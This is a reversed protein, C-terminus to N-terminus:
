SACAGSTARLAKRQTSVYSVKASLYTNKAAGRLHHAPTLTCFKAGLSNPIRGPAPRATNVSIPFLPDRNPGSKSQGPAAWAPIPAAPADGNATAAEPRIRGL